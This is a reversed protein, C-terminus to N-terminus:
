LIVANNCPFSLYTLGAPFFYTMPTDKASMAQGLEQKGKEEQLTIPVKAGAVVPWSPSVGTFDEKKGKSKVGLCYYRIYGNGM